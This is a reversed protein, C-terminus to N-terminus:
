VFNKNLDPKLYGIKHKTKVKRVGSVGLIKFKIEPTSQFDKVMGAQRGM